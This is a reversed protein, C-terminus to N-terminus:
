NMVQKSDLSIQRPLLSELFTYVLIVGATSTSLGGDLDAFLFFVILNLLPSPHAADQTISQTCFESLDM